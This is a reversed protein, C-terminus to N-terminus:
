CYASFHSNIDVASWVWLNDVISKVGARVDVCVSVCASLCVSCLM